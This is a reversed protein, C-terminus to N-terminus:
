RPRLSPPALDQVRLELRTVGNWANAHLGCVLDVARGVEARRTAQNFAMAEMPQGDPGAALVLKLHGSGVVRSAAVPTARLLLTAPPNGEGTPELAALAQYLGWDLDGLALEADIDLAPRLDLGALAAEALGTVRRELEPLDATRVTFGAARAHGGFRLLLDAVQELADTIHFEPVSRASGRALEGDVRAVMAPRYHRDALRGAVLGVVGLAV